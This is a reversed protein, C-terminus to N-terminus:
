QEDRRPHKQQYNEDDSCDAEDVESSTARKLRSTHLKLVSLLAVIVAAASMGFAPPLEQFLITIGMVLVFYGFASKLATDPVRRGLASGFLAGVVTVATIILVPIWDISVTTLYGAMGTFSKLAIVLLSTGVAVPMSLGGLLVLVPVVLFGGGAGVMGTIVGVVLGELFIKLFPLKKPALKQSPQKRKIVMALATALMMISFAVMLVAGPLQAGLLGGGFAGVMSAGGFFMGTRWDVNGRRAHTWVSILSTIGIIFMSSAIAEQPSMGAVYTLLPVALITGGGGLLGLTLGIGVALVTTLVLGTTM